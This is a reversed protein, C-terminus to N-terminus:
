YFDEVERGQTRVQEIAQGATIHAQVSVLATTMLGGASEEDYQLLGRLDGAEDVPLEALIRDQEEPDLEAILDAADDDALEQILEASEEPALAVLLEAAEDGEEMEALAESALESPLARVLALRMEDNRLSEVVDAVDSAHLDEVASELGAIDGAQILQALREVFTPDEQPSHTTM